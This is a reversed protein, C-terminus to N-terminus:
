KKFQLIKTQTKEQTSLKQIAEQKSTEYLRECWKIGKEFHHEEIYEDDFTKAM